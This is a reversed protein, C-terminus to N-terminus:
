NRVLIKQIKKLLKLWKEKEKGLQLLYEKGKKSVKQSSEGEGSPPQKRKNCRTYMLPEGVGSFDYVQNWTLPDNGGFVRDDLADVEDDDDDGDMERVLWENCEDIDNLSIPDVEDKLNYRRMLAQNYKVFVLDHLKKHDLRNKRKTHIQLM